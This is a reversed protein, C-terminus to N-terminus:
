GRLNRGRSQVGGVRWFFCVLFGVVWFVFFMALASRKSGRNGFTQFFSEPFHKAIQPLDRRKSIIGLSIHKRGPYTLNPYDPLFHIQASVHSM